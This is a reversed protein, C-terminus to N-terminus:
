STFPPKELRDAASTASADSRLAAGLTARLEVRARSLRSMVTGIAIQQLDAIERCKFGEVVALILVSRQELPLRDIAALIETQTFAPQAPRDADTTPLDSAEDLSVTVPRAQLKRRHKSLLNFLIRFLWGKCNTGPAFRHFAKWANLMTEQVLDEALAADRTLRAATRLLSGVHPMAEREFVETKPESDTVELMSVPTLFLAERNM